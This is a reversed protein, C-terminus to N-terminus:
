FDLEWLEVYEMNKKSLHFYDMYHILPIFILQFVSTLM